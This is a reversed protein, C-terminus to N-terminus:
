KMKRRLYSILVGLTLTHNCLTMNPNIVIRTFGSRRIDQCLAFHECKVEVKKDNNMMVSYKKDKLADYHYIALGGFASYVPMLPLGPKLFSWTNHNQYISKETQIENEKGLETLAYTDHYRKKLNPSFSFGNACIVDWEDSLGFSHAIGNINLKSVDLDIVMVFETKPMSENLVRLYYNRFEVMKSIRYDSYYKNVGNTAYESSITIQNTDKSIITVNQHDKKWKELTQKTGDISDNEFIIVNSAKFKSRLQEVIPINRKLARNCDRVIACITLSSKNMLEFGNVITEKQYDKM